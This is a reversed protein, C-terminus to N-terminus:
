YSEPDSATTQSTRLIYSAEKIHIAGKQRLHSSYLHFQSVTFNESTFLSHSTLFDTLHLTSPPKRFRALTVHPVFKRKEFDISLATLCAVLKKHLTHILPDPDLAAWLVKIPGRPPFYGIGKLRINIAPLAVQSLALEIEKQLSINTKGIFCLTLHFQDANVWKAGRIGRCLVNLSTAINPPIDIAIFLRQM